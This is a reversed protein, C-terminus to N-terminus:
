RGEAQLPRRKVIANIERQKDPDLLYADLTKYLDFDGSSGAALNLGIVVSLAAQVVQMRDLQTFTEDTGVTRVPPGVYMGSRYLKMAEDILQRALEGEDRGTVTITHTTM